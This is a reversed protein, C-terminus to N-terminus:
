KRRETGLNQVQYNVIQWITDKREVFYIYQKVELYDRYWFEERVQVQGQHPSYSTLQIDFKQPIMLIEQDVEKAQLLRRYEELMYKRNEASADKYKIRWNANNLILKELDIYLFFKEWEGAQRAKIAFEVVEDPPIPQQVIQEGTNAAILEKKAPETVAPLIKLPLIDSTIGQAAPGTMLEPYFVARINFDGARDLKIYQSLDVIFSYEERTKLVIEKYFAYQVRSREIIFNDAHELAINTPTKVEFELNLIKFDALKFSFSDPSNNIVSIKIQIDNITNLYYIKKNYYRIVVDIGNKANVAATDGEAMARTFAALNLFLIIALIIKPTSKMASM